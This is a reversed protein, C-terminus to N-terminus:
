RVHFPLNSVLTGKPTKVRVKGTTAGGPVTAVILTPSEVNFQAAIGNFTVATTGTLNDGLIAVRSTVKGYPPMTEVFPALGMSLKFVTGGNGSGGGASTAGYFNGDTGQILSGYSTEGDTCGPVSCFNYLVQYAGAPTIQYIVGQGNAGGFLTTGYLNGDTGLLLGTAPNSGDACNSESCFSHLVSVAGSQTLQFVVGDNATGGGTATGYFNGNPGAVLGTPGCGFTSTNSFGYVTTLAGKPSMQFISGCGNTSEFGYPTVGLFNGTPLQLLSVGAYPIEFGNTGDFTALTTLTGSSTVKYIMGDGNPGGTGTIGYIGAPNLTVPGYPTGEQNALSFSHVPTVTGTPTMEYLTGGHNVLDQTNTGYFNGSPSLVLGSYPVGGDSCANQCFEHLVTLTGAPTVKFAVGCTAFPNNACTGGGGETTGYFNGDFGQVLFWVQNGTGSPPAISGLSTLVTYTQASAHAAWLLLACVCTRLCKSSLL